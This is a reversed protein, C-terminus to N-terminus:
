SDETPRTESTEDTSANSHESANPASNYEIAGDSAGDKQSNLEDAINREINDLLAEDFEPIDRPTEQETSENNEINESSEFNESSEIREESGVSDETENADDERTDDVDVPLDKTPPPPPEDIRIQSNEADLAKIELLTPLDELSKLNFYDLFDPTTAYMAPRGPVDKHGVVRVWGRETLTRIINSSVAVGRVEEIEGRTIPQKYAVLSLTELLARSYRQPKEEWLRSVWTSLEHRVQFRWGSAVEVLEFGRDYCDNKIEHLAKVIDTKAPRGADTFLNQLADPTLPKGAAMLAAEIIQKLKREVPPLKDSLENKQVTSFLSAHGLSTRAESELESGEAKSDDQESGKLKSDEQESSLTEDTM